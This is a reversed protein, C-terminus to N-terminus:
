GHGRLGRGTSLRPAPRSAADGSCIGRCPESSSVRMPRRNLCPQRAVAKDSSSAPDKAIRASAGDRRGVTELARAISASSTKADGARPSVALHLRDSRPQVQQRVADGQGSLQNIPFRFKLSPLAMRGRSFRSSCGPSVPQGLNMRSRASRCKSGIPPPSVSSRTSRRTDSRPAPYTPPFAAVFGERGSPIPSCGDASRSGATPSLPLGM